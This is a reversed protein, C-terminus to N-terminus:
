EPLIVRDVVHVVGNAADIDAAVINIGNVQLGSYGKVFNLGFDSITKAQRAKAADDSYVRGSVVHAKLISVLKQKNESKLLNAVTGEPLKAFAADTPAFVTFPGGSALTDALGAATAAALLTNFTGANKATTVINDNAPLVVADIVHIVGNTCAIDAKVVKAGDVTVTGGEASLDLRQGEVTTLGKMKVVKDAVIKGPVVHYTLVQTLKGKNAPKLLDALVDQPVNAFASDTPAFVTFPGEGKLTDILGAAKLATALTNFQGAEVATDVIDHKHSAGSGCKGCHAFATGVVILNAAMVLAFRKVM